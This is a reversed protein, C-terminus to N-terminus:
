LQPWNYLVNTSPESVGSSTSTTTPGTATTTTASLKTSSRRRPRVQVMVRRVDQGVEVPGAGGVSRGLREVAPELVQAAGCDALLLTCCGEVSSHGTLRPLREAGKALDRLRIQSDWAAVALGPSGDVTVPCCARLPSDAVIRPALSEGTATSWFRITSDEGATVVAPGGPLAVETCDSVSGEHGVLREGISRHSAPDWLRATGESSATVVLSSSPLFRCSTVADM